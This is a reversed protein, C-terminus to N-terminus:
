KEGGLYLLLDLSAESFKTGKSEDLNAALRKILSESKSEPFTDPTYGMKKMEKKMAIEAIPGIFRAYEGQISQIVKPSLISGTTSSAKPKIEASQLKQDSTVSISILRGVLLSLLSMNLNLDALVLIM